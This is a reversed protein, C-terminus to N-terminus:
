NQAGPAGRLAALKPSLAYKEIRYSLTRRTVGLLHAAHAFPDRGTTEPHWLTAYGLQEIRQACETATKTDMLDHFCWVGLKGPNM